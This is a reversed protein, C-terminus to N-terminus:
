PVNMPLVYSFMQHCLSTCRGYPMTQLYSCLESCIPSPMSSVPLPHLRPHSNRVCALVMPYSNAVFVMQAVRMGLALSTGHFCAIVSPLPVSCRYFATHTYMTCKHTVGFRAERISCSFINCAIRVRVKVM